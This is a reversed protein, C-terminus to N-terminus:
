VRRRWDPIEDDLITELANIRSEMKQASEWVEELMHGDANTLSKTARWRTAFHGIIFLPLVITMFLIGFIEYM